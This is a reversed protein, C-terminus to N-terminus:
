PRVSTSSPVVVHRSLTVVQAVMSHTSTKDVPPLALQQAIWISRIAAFCHAWLPCPEQTLVLVQVPVPSPEARLTTGATTDPASMNELVPQGPRTVFAVSTVRTQQVPIPSAGPLASVQDLHEAKSVNSPPCDSRSSLLDSARDLVPSASVRPPTPLAKDPSKFRILLPIQISKISMSRNSISQGILHQLSPGCLSITIDM